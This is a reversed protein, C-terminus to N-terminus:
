VFKEDPGFRAGRSFELASSKKRGEIQVFDLELMTGEGCLVNLGAVKSGLTSEVIEGAKFRVGGAASM